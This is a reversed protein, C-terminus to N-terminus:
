KAFGWHFLRIDGDKVDKCEFCRKNLTDKQRFKCNGCCKMKEIQAQQTIFSTKLVHNDNSLQEIQAKLEKLQICFDEAIDSKEKELQEIRGIYHKKGISFGYKIGKLACEYNYHWYGCHHNKHINCRGWCMQKKCRENAIEEAKEEDTM